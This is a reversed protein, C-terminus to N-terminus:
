WNTDAGCRGCPRKLDVFKSQYTRHIDDQRKHHRRPRPSEKSFRRSPKSSPLERPPSRGRSGSSSRDKRHRLRKTESTSSRRMIKHERLIITPKPRSPEDPYEEIYPSPERRIKGGTTKPKDAKHRDSAHCGPATASGSSKRKKAPKKPAREEETSSTEEFVTDEDDDRARNRSAGCTCRVAGRGKARPSTKRRPSRAERKNEEQCWEREYVYDVSASDGSDYDTTTTTTSPDEKSDM